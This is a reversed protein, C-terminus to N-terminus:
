PSYSVSEKSPYNYQQTEHLVYYKDIKGQHKECIILFGLVHQPKYM